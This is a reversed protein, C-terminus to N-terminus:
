GNVRSTRLHSSLFPSPNKPLSLDVCVQSKAATGVKAIPHGSLPQTIRNANSFRGRNPRRTLPRERWLGTAWSAPWWLQQSTVPRMLWDRHPLQRLLPSRVRKARDSPAFSRAAFQTRIKTRLTDSRRMKIALPFSRTRLFPQQNLPRFSFRHRRFVVKRRQLSLRRQALQDACGFTTPRDFSIVFFELIHAQPMVF